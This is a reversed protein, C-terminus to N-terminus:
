PARRYAARMRVGPDDRDVRHLSAHHGAHFRHEGVLIHRAAIKVAELDLVLRHEGGLDHAVPPLGDRKHRGLVRLLRAAGGLLHTDLVLDELRDRVRVVCERRACRSKMGVAVDRPPDLDPVAFCVGSGVDNHLALVLDPHLVLRRETRLRAQRDRVPLAPDVQVDRRLPQVDVLFLQGADEPERGLFNAKGHGPDSTCETRSFVERHLGVRAHQGELCAARDLDGVRPGLREDTVHMAM